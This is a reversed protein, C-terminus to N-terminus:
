STLVTAARPDWTLRVAAGAARPAEDGAPRRV